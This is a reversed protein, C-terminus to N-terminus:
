SQYSLKDRLNVFCDLTGLFVFIPAVFPTFLVLAFYSFFLVGKGLKRNRVIWHLLAVGSILMPFLILQGWLSYDNFLVSFVSFSLVIIVAPIKKIKFAQFEEGFGGPNYLIAQWWRAIIVGLFTNLALTWLMLASITRESMPEISINRAQSANKLVESIQIVLSTFDGRFVLLIGSMLIFSSLVLYFLTTGWDGRFSLIYTAFLVNLLNVASLLSLFNDSSGYYYAVILPLLGWLCVLSGEPIGKRLSVLGVTAPSIFPVANGLAAAICAHLRGRMIFSALFYM